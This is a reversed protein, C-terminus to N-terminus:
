FFFFAFYFLFSREDNGAPGLMREPMAWGFGGWERGRQKVALHLQAGM